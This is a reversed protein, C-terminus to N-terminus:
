IYTKYRILVVGDGGDGGSYEITSVPDTWGGGGGAGYGSGPLGGGSGSGAVANGVGYGTGGYGRRNYVAGGGGGGCLYIDITNVGAPVTWNSTTKIEEIVQTLVKRRNMFRRRGM